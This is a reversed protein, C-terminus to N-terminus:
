VRARDSVPNFEDASDALDGSYPLHRATFLISSLKILFGTTYSVSLASVLRLTYISAEM